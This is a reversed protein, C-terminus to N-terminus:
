EEGDDRKPRTMDRVLDALVGQEEALRELEGAQEPALTGKRRKTEELAETKENIEQQLAKLMKLQATAPVGDPNPGGGGGGGGGGGQGGQGGAADAKLADLLQKFRESAAKAAQSTLRDTKLEALRRAAQDMSQSARKLTLSFVPAGELKEVLDATEDKLGAEVQGLGRVGARQAITLKGESKQRLADYSGTESVVKDQREALAKLDDGIRALQEVALQEEADRRTQELEDQADDLDALANEQEKGAEDGQDDDMNNQARTMKGAANQGARAARDASLKALRQLQRKLDKAIEAQEKALRKLQQRRENANANRQAERTKKLNQAQRARTQALESEANKLEKVLRALERERRNQIADVLDRLENRAQDQRSRAQGMQNNELQDAAEGLKGVTGQQQSKASAERMAAAALPDSEDMRRAMEAMRQQLNQLGKGVQSQRAALNGLESRQEPTLADRQKGMMDPRTAAEASQKLAQEQQKLLEQADKVVGRYTEFESLGDLMKQLEDAIAKQNKRADALALSTPAAPSKEEPSRSEASKPQGGPRDPSKNAGVNDELSKNARTLGQEAPGANQDRIVGLRALMDQLQKEAPPNSIRFDRLDDLMRRMRSSLSDDRNSIRGGVQRQIMSANNLDDRTPQPLRDTEKLTRIANDVPMMAQKQMALVRAMEVRLERQADDFQRAIEEKSVIRLRLERSKGINPGKITDCDRADAYATIVTGVPLALAGIEWKHTIEQHKILSVAGGDPGAAKAAWLPIAVQERPESEGTAVRYILRASHVGFDDDVTVHLPITADPPIDRDNKPEDIVVRPAEDRFYRAEYRVADRGRFGEQDELDFWFTFNEKIDLSTRFRTRTPDFDLARGSAVEGQRLEAHALPKNAVGELELRTGELARFQTLGPALIQAPLGTYAPAILRVLLSKLTPPPVVRVAVERISNTDDGAAVSFHFPQNVSELRGLFEGGEVSRLPEASEAGDAFEYTVTASDPIKDGRRVKVTLSFPDGRAVTLTTQPLDLLLHTAQPWKDGAFPLFLRRMALHSTGPSGIVLFGGVFLALSALGVALLIPRLEIVQRFDLTSAEAEAQRITAARLEPSGFRESDAGETQFQIMSALRDNLGPWREEIRMAIDLDAFRVFLPRLVFRYGLYGLAGGLAILLAARIVADLHFLWDAIGAAIVLPLLLGILWSLGHLAILRRVNARLSGIRSALQRSTM